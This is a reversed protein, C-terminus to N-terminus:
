ASRYEETVRRIYDRTERPLRDPYKEVNGAGWNYAALARPINGQYRDLLRKLYRTGGMVNEFPDYPDKVGVERATEPMLQMLGMAGKPSTSQPQFNSEAKIVARILGPDVGYTEAARRIIPTLGQPSAPADYKQVDQRYKSLEEVVIRRLSDAALTEVAGRESEGQDGRGMLSDLLRLNMQTQQDRLFQGLREQAPASPRDGGEATRGGRSEAAALSDVFSPSSRQFGVPKGQQEVPEKKVSGGGFPIGQLAGLSM